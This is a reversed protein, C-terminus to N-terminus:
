QISNLWLKAEKVTFFSEPKDVSDEPIALWKGTRDGDENYELELRGLQEDGRIVEYDTPLASIYKTSNFDM